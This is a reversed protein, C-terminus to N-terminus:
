SRAGTTTSAPPEAPTAPGDPPQAGVLHMFATELDADIVSLERVLRGALFLSRLLAEPESTHVVLEPLVADPAAGPAVEVHRVGPLGALHDIPADTVLTVTRGAVTSKIQEATGDAVVRGHSIVVIRDALADAEGLNHTSFLVTKGQAAFGRVQDWFRHRSAVDLAATPEDLFLLDPDGAIALAYSLRQRQGGSLQGVRRDRKELLDARRLIEDVPLAYPYYHRVLDITEEVSLAEPAESDQLMAGVRARAFASNPSAGFVEVSGSTPTRLGLLMEITTSKGAGNPGLIAVVDGEGIRLDLHDVATVKDYRKTLATASVVDM